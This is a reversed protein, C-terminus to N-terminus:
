ANFRVFALNWCALVRREFPPSHRDPMSVILDLNDFM